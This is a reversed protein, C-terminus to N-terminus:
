LFTGNSKRLRYKGPPVTIHPKINLNRSGAGGERRDLKTGRLLWARMWIHVLVTAYSCYLQLLQPAATHWSVSSSDSIVSCTFSFAFLAIREKERGGRETERERERNREGGFSSYYPVHKRDEHSTYNWKCLQCDTFYMGKELAFFM